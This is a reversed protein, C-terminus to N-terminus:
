PETVFPNTASRPKYRRKLRVVVAQAAGLFRLDSM